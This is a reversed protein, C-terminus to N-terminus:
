LKVRIRNNHVTYIHLGPNIDPPLIRRRLLFILLSVRVGVVLLEQLGQPYEEMKVATFKGPIVAKDNM